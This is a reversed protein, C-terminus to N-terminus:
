PKSVKLTLKDISIGDSLSKENTLLVSISHPHTPETPCGTLKVHIVSSKTSSLSVLGAPSALKCGDFKPSEITLNSAVLSDKFSVGNTVSWSSFSGNILVSYTGDDDKLTVTEVEGTAEIAVTELHKSGYTPLNSTVDPDKPNENQRPAPSEDKKKSHACAPLLTLLATTVIKLKM